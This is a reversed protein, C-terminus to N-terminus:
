LFDGEFEESFYVNETNELTTTTVRTHSKVIKEFAKNSQHLILCPDRLNIDM